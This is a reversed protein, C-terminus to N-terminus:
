TTNCAFGRIEEAKMYLRVLEFMSDVQTPELGVNDHKVFIFGYKTAADLLEDSATPSNLDIIPIDVDEEVAGPM